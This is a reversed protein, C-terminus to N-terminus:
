ATIRHRVHEPHHLSLLGQLILLPQKLVQHHLHFLPSRCHLVIGLLYLVPQNLSFFVCTQTSLVSVSFSM